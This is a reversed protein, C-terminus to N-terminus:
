AAGIVSMLRGTKGFKKKEMRYSFFLDTREMTCFPAIYINQAEVGSAM